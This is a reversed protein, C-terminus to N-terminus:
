TFCDACVLKMIKHIDQSSAGKHYFGTAGLKLAMEKDKESRSTSIIYVPIDKLKPTSKIQKLAEFGDMLPMNLDLLILDPIDDYKNYKNRQLLLDM